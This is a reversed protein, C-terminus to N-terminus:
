AHEDLRDQAVAQGDVELRAHDLWLLLIGLLDAVLQLVQERAQVGVSAAVVLVALLHIRQDLRHGSHEARVVVVRVHEEVQIQLKSLAARLISASRRPNREPTSFVQGEIITTNRLTNKLFNNEV